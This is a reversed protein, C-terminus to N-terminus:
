FRNVVDEDDIWSNYSADFGKWKVYIQNKDGVKRRRLIKEVRFIENGVKTIEFDYFAGQIIEKGNYSKLTFMPIRKNTSIKHIKFIEENSQEKYGRAFKGKMKSIRVTDGIQFKTPRSKITAYYKQMNKRIFIHTDPNDEAIQPTTGIMRHRRGNYTKLFLPMLHTISGDRNTKDIFRYTENETMYKYMIGQLTRNFREIYAGHISSDPTFLVIGNAMCFNEFEKNKFETGRDIVLTKPNEIAEELVSKFAHLVIDGHKSKLLRVFAYRTFTDIVTLLYHVDDNYKALGQIDVLDMQFQYRKFHSYSINRQGKHYEKHITYSENQSLFEKIKKISIKGKYYKFINNIGSFAIPHGPKTYNEELDAISTEQNM